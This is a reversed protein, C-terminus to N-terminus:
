VSTIQERGIISPQHKMIVVNGGDGQPVEFLKEDGSVRLFM